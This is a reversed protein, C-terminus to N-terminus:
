KMAMQDWCVKNYTFNERLFAPRSYFRIRRTPNTPATKVIISLSENSEESTGTVRYVIGLFGDGNKSAKELTIKLKKTELEGVFFNRINSKVIDSLIISLENSM